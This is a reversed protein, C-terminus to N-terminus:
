MKWQLIRWFKGLYPNQKFIFWRAVRSIDWRRMRPISHLLLRKGTQHLVFVQFRLYLIPWTKNWRISTIWFPLKKFENRCLPSSQGWHCTRLNTWKKFCTKCVDQAFSSAWAPSQLNLFLNKKLVAEPAHLLL